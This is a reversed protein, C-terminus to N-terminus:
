RKIRRHEYHTPCTAWHAVYRVEDPDVADSLALGGLVVALGNRIVVTGEPSPNADLPMRKGAVTKAWRIPAQCSRCMSM